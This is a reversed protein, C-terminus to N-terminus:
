MVIVNSKLINQVSFWIWTINSIFHIQFSARLQLDDWYSLQADPTEMVVGHLHCFVDESFLLAFYACCNQSCQFCYLHLFWESEHIVEEEEKWIHKSSAKLVVCLDLCLELCLARSLFSSLKIWCATQGCASFVDTLWDWHPKPHISSSAFLIVAIVGM